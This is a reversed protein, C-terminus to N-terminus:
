LLVGASGRVGAAQVRRLPLRRRPAYRAVVANDRERHRASVKCRIL